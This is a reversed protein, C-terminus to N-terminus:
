VGRDYMFIQTFQVSSLSFAYLMLVLDNIKVGGTDGIHPNCFGMLSYISYFYFGVPNLMAFEVSFGAVSKTNYNQWSQPLFSLGWAITSIWGTINVLTDAASESLVM